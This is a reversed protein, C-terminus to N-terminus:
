PMPETNIDILQIAEEGAIPKDYKDIPVATYAGTAIALCDSKEYDDIGNGEYRYTAINDAYKYETAILAGTEDTVCAFTGADTPITLRAEGEPPNYLWGLDEPNVYEIGHKQGYDFRGIEQNTNNFLAYSDGERSSSALKAVGPLIPFDQPDQQLRIGM